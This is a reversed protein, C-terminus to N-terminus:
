NKESRFILVSKCKKATEDIVKKCFTVPTTGGTGKENNEDKKPIFRMIYNKVLEMHCKRFVVLKKVCENYIEELEENPHNQLYDKIHQKSEMFELFERHKQPMFGRMKRLYPGTTPHDHVITLAIDYVQILSSQAASGGEYRIQVESEMGEIQLGNEFHSTDNFGKLYIRLHNFFIDPDCEDYMKKIIKIIKQINDRIVILNEKLLNTRPRENELEMTIKIVSDISSASEGEIAVMILYFWQESKNITPPLMLNISRLNNLCFDKTEDILFWNWLDVAAHTLVPVIGLENSVQLWLSGLWNPLKKNTTPNMWVFRHVIMCLVSYLYKKYLTTLSGSDFKQEISKVREDFDQSHIHTVLENIPGMTDPLTTECKEPLFGKTTIDFIEKIAELSM